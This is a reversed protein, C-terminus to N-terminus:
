SELFKERCAARSVCVFASEPVSLPTESFSGGVKGQVRAKLTAGDRSWGTVIARATFRGRRRITIEDGPICQLYSIM